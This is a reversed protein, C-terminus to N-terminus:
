HRERQEHAGIFRHRRVLLTAVTNSPIGSKTVRFTNVGSMNCSFYAQTLATATTTHQLNAADWVRYPIFNVGDFTASFSFNGAPACSLQILAVAHADVNFIDRTVASVGADEMLYTNTHTGVQSQNSQNGIPDSMICQVFM